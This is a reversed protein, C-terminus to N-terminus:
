HAEEWNDGIGVSVDLNVKLQAAQSMLDSIKKGYQVAKNDPVEFVLEDHVQMLMYADTASTTIWNHLNIMARKIIDAQAGQMPANIAAREAAKRLPVRKSNIDPLYLRRGFLTEVYGKDAALKRTDDMYTKVGPFREFYTKIYKESDARSIGLQKSLGFASMGYILGFNIAKAHRRQDDTVDDPKIGFVEAATSRHVDLNNAFTQLLSKDDSLHAMIRLEIQSYDASLIKYGPQAIFAARIQKGEKTRIPINQLNPDTSSLRGTATVAQNYSTHIRGTKSNILLPLKDTYTSKLKSLSRYELIIKPLLYDIALEQLVNEATSPQGTPTQELIPLKLKEFLIEQLQKPSGLNFEQGALSVAEKELKGIKEALSKSQLELAERDILVGKREMAVLVVILPMEISSFVEQLKNDAQLEVDLKQFLRLAIDADEAAYDTALEIEVKDFTKVNAGKGAVDTYSINKHNFYRLALADLNHRSATSNLVYSALMTDYIPNNIIVNHNALVELDYKLNHAIKIKKNDKLIKQIQSLTRQRSLQTPADPYNHALPIYYATGPNICFSIGVIEANMYELSTTETDFAFCKSKELEDLLNDFDKDNLIVKYSKAISEANISSEERLQNMWTKFEMEAYLERLRQAKVPKIQLTEINQELEVDTKITILDKYLDLKDLNDRLNEGVKGSIQEAKAKINDLSKYQEMWKLATKPGVKPIGPINDVADGILSLYDVISEPPLEFKEIVGGRDMIKDTMTNVLVVYDNVLQAMDKDSTSILTFIKKDTAQKALTGIVDDAEVGPKKILPLGMAEIIEHLPQIQVALDDPMETRNAKYAEYMDHRFTKEKCDFVVAINHPEYQALLKKLMNVVGYIAGTPQGHSNTLPPLAYYARFLYSSGDVLIFPNSPIAVM